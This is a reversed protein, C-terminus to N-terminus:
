LDITVTQSERQYKLWGVASEPGPGEVIKYNRDADELGCDGRQLHIPCFRRVLGVQKNKPKTGLPLWRTAEAPSETGSRDFRKLLRYTSVAEEACGLQYCLLRMDEWAEDTGVPHDGAELLAWPLHGAMTLLPRAEGDYSSAYLVRGKRLFQTSLVSVGHTHQQSSYLGPYLAACGTALGHWGGDFTSWGPTRENPESGQTQLLESSQWATSVRWEDGSLGSTKYRYFTALRLLPGAEGMLRIEDFWNVDDGHRCVDHDDDYKM